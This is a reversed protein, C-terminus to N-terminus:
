PLVCDPCNCTVQPCSITIDGGIGGGVANCGGLTPGDDSNDFLNAEIAEMDHSLSASNDFSTCEDASMMVDVVFDACGARAADLAGITLTCDSGVCVWRSDSLEANFVTQAPVTETLVVGTTGASGCNSWCLEYSLQDIRGSKCLKLDPVGFVEVTVSDSDSRQQCSEMVSVENVTNLADTPLYSDVTVTFSVTIQQGPRLVPYTDEIYHCEGMVTNCDWKGM